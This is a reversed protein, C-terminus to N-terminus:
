RVVCVCILDFYILSKFKIGFVTFSRSSLMSPFSWSMPRSLSKVYFFLLLFLSECVPSCWVLLKQLFFVVSHFPARWFPPPPVVCRVLPYRGLICFFVWCCFFSHSIKFHTLSKFLCKKLSLMFIELLYVFSNWTVLYWPFEFWVDLLYWRVGMLTAMILFYFGVLM